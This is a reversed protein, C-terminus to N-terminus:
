VKSRLEQGEQHLLHHELHRTFNLLPEKTMNPVVKQYLRWASNTMAMLCWVFLFWWWKKSRIRPIYLNLASDFLNVSGMYKNYQAINNPMDVTM